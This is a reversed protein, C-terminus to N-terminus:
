LGTFGKLEAIDRRLGEGIQSECCGGLADYEWRGLKMQGGSEIKTKAAKKRRERTETGTMGARKLEGTRDLRFRKCCEEKEDNVM